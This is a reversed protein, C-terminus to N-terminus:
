AVVGQADLRQRIHCRLGEALHYINNFRLIGVIFLLPMHAVLTLTRNNASATTIQRQDDAQRHQQEIQRMLQQMNHAM